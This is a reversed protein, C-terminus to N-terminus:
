LEKVLLNLANRFAKDGVLEKKYEPRLRGLLPLLCDLKRRRKFRLRAWMAPSHQQRMQESVQEIGRALEKCRAKFSAM